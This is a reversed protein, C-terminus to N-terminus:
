CLVHTVGHTVSHTVSHIVSHTVSHTVIDYGRAMVGDCGYLKVADYEQM